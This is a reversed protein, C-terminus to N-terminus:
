LIERIKKYKAAILIKQIQNSLMNIRQQTESLRARNLQRQNENLKSDRVRILYRQKENILTSLSQDLTRLYEASQIENSRHHLCYLFAATQSLFEHILKKDYIVAWMSQQERIQYNGLLYNNTGIEILLKKNKKIAHLQHQIWHAIYQGARDVIDDFEQRSQINLQNM